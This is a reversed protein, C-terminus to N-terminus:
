AVPRATTLRPGLWPPPEMDKRAVFSKAGPIAVQDPDYERLAALLAPHVDASAVPVVLWGAGGWMTTIAHIGKRAMSHWEGDGPVLLAVCPARLVM